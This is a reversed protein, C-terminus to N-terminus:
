FEVGVTLLYADTIFPEGAVRAPELQLQRQVMCVVLNDITSSGSSQDVRTRSIQGTPEVQLQLVVTARTGPSAIAGLNTIGCLSLWSQVSISDQNLLRPPVDPFDRGHPAAAIGM